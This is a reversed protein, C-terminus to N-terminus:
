QQIINWNLNPYEKVLDKVFNPGHQQIAQYNPTDVITFHREYELQELTYPHKAIRAWFTEHIAARLPPQTSLVLVMYRLDFKRGQSLLPRTIYRQAISPITDHSRILQGLTNTLYMHQAHAANRFFC